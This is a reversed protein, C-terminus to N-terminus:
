APARARGPVVCQGRNAIRRRRDTKVPIVTLPKVNWKVTEQYSSGAHSSEHVGVERGLYQAFLFNSTSDSPLLYRGSSPSSMVVEETFSISSVMDPPWYRTSDYAASGVGWLAMLSFAMTSASATPSAMRRATLREPALLRRAAMAILPSAAIVLTIWIGLFRPSLSSSPWTSICASWYM